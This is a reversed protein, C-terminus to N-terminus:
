KHQAILDQLRQPNAGMLRDVVEGNKIFVFTPMASVSYEAATEPNEDVDVKVFIVGEPTTQCLEQFFPAIAKCPGCWTASFDIVVLWSDAAARALIEQVEELTTPELVGETASGGGRTTTLSRKSVGFVSPCNMKNNNNNNNNSAAATAATTAASSSVGAPQPIAEVKGCLSIWCLASLLCLFLRM